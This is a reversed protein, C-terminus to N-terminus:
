YGRVFALAFNCTTATGFTLQWRLDENVGDTDGLAVVGSKPTDQTLVGSTLLDSWAGGTSDQLKVTVTGTSGGFVHYMMFGGKATAATVSHNATGSTNAVPEAGPAHILFGWPIPYAITDAREDWSGLDLNVTLVGEAVNARYSKQDVQACFVPDGVAPAARIGLPVMVDRVADSASALVAHLGSSATNDMVANVGGISISCQGPLAGKVSDALTIIENQNFGWSLQGVSRAYGSMDYGDIYVRTYKSGVTRGTAM